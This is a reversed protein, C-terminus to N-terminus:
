VFHCDPVAGTGVLRVTWTLESLDVTAGGVQVANWTPVTASGTVTKAPASKGAEARRMQALPPDLDLLTPKVAM